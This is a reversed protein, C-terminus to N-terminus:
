KSLPDEDLISQEYDADMIDKLECLGCKQHAQCMRCNIFPQRILQNGGDKEVVDSTKDGEESEQESAEDFADAEEKDLAESIEALTPTRKSVKVKNM